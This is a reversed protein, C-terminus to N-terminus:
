RASNVLESFKRISGSTSKTTTIITRVSSSANSVKSHSGDVAVRCRRPRARSSRESGNGAGGQLPRLRRVAAGRQPTARAGRSAAPEGTGRRPGTGAVGDARRKAGSPFDRFCLGHRAFIRGGRHAAGTRRQGKQGRSKTRRAAEFLQGGQREGLSPQSRDSGSLRRLGFLDQRREM